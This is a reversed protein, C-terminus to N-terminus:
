RQAVGVSSPPQRKMSRQLDLLINESDLLEPAYDSAGALLVERAQRWDPSSSVVIISAAPNAKRLQCVVDVIDRMLNADIVILQYGSVFFERSQAEGTTHVTLGLRSIAQRLRGWSNDATQGRVILCAKKLTDPV